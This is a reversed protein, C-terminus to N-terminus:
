ARSAIPDVQSRKFFHATKMFMHSQDEEEPTKGKKVTYKWIPFSAVAKEGKRVQYGIEKWATYTHIPEPEICTTEEGNENLYGISNGTTGIVGQAALSLRARLIIQENTM